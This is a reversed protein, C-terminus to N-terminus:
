KRDVPKVRISCSNPNVANRSFSSRWKSNQRVVPSHDIQLLRVASNIALPKPSADNRTAARRYKSRGQSVASATRFSYAAQSSTRCSEIKISGSRTEALRDGHGERLLDERLWSEIKGAM